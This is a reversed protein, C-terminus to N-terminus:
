AEGSGRGTQRGRLAFLIGALGGLIGVLGLLDGDAIALVPLGLPPLGLLAVLPTRLLVRPWSSAYARAWGLTVGALVPGGLILWAVRASGVWAPDQQMPQTLNWRGFAVALYAAVNIAAGYLARRRLQSVQNARATVEHHRSM